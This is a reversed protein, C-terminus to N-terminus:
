GATTGVEWMFTTDEEDRYSRVWRAMAAHDWGPSAALGNTTDRNPHV